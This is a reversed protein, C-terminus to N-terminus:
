EQEFLNKGNEFHHNNYDAGQLELWKGNECFYTVSAKESFSDDIGEHDLSKPLPGRYAKQHALITKKSASSLVRSYGIKNKDITQLYNKDEHTALSSPCPTGKEWIVFISSKGGKSCLLAWDKKTNSSFRGQVFNHPKKSFKSQPISCGQTNLAKKIKLPISKESKLFEIEKEAKEWDLEAFTMSTLFFYFLFIWIKM